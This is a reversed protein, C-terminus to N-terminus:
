PIRYEEPVLYNKRGVKKIYGTSCLRRITLYLVLRSNRIREKMQGLSFPTHFKLALFLFMGKERYSLRTDDLVHLNMVAGEGSM